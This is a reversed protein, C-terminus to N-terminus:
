EEVIVYGGGEEIVRCEFSLCVSALINDLTKGTFTGTITEAALNAARLQIPRDYIRTLEAAVEALPAREFIIRGDLWGLAADAHAPGLMEPAQDGRRVAAQNATLEVRAAAADPAELAVRGERVAVRTEEGRAWVSFVTGLVRVEANESAVVFPAEAAVVEFLAEGELV